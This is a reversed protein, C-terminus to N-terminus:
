ANSKFRKAAREKQQASALAADAVDLAENATDLERRAKDLARQANRFNADKENAVESAHQFAAKADLVEQSDTFPM